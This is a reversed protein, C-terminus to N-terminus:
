SVFLKDPLRSRVLNIHQDFMEKGERLPYKHPKERTTTEITVQATWVRGPERIEVSIIDSYYIAFNEKDAAIINDPHTTMYMHEKEEGEERAKRYRRRAIIEMLLGDPYCRKEVTRAVILRDSTFFLCGFWSTDLHIGIAGKVVESV